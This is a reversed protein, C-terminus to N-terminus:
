ILGRDMSYGLLHLYTFIWKDDNGV